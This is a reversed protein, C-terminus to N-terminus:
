KPIQAIFNMYSKVDYDRLIQNKLSIDIRLANCKTLIGKCFIKILISDKMKKIEKISFLNSDSVVERIANEVENTNIIGVLSFDM